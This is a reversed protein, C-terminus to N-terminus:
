WLGVARMFTALQYRVESWFPWAHSRPPRYNPNVSWRWNTTFFDKLMASMPKKQDYPIVSAGFVNAGFAEMPGRVCDYLRKDAHDAYESHKMFKDSRPDIYGSGYMDALTAVGVLLPFFRIRAMPQAAPMEPVFRARKVVYYVGKPPSPGMVIEIPSSMKKEVILGAQELKEEFATVEAGTRSRIPGILAKGENPTLTREMELLTRLHAGPAREPYSLPGYNHVLRSISNSRIPLADVRLRLRSFGGPGWDMLADGAILQERSLVGQQVAQLGLSANPGSPFDVVLGKTRLFEYFSFVPQQQKALSEMYTLDRFNTVM